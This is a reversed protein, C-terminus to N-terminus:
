KQGGWDADNHSCIAAGCAVCRSAAIATIRQHTTGFVAALTAPTAAEWGHRREVITRTTNPDPNM